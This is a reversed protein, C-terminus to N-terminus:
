RVAIDMMKSLEDARNLDDVVYQVFRALLLVGGEAIKEKYDSLNGNHYASFLNDLEERDFEPEEKLYNTVEDEDILHSLNELYNEKSM